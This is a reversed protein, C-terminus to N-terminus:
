RQEGSLMCELTVRYGVKGNREGIVDCSKCRIMYTGDTVEALFGLVNFFDEDKGSVRLSVFDGGAESIEVEDMDYKILIGQLLAYFENPTDFSEAQEQHFLETLSKKYLSRNRQLSLENRLKETKSEASLLIRMMAAVRSLVIAQTVLMFLALAVAAIIYVHLNRQASRRM